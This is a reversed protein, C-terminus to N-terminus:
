KSEKEIEKFFMNHILEKLNTYRQKIDNKYNEAFRFIAVTCIKNKMERAFLWMSFFIEQDAITVNSFNCDYNWFISM